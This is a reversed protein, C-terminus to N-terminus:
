QNVQDLATGDKDNSIKKLKAVFFGDVNNKHPAFRKALIMSPDFKHQRHNVFGDDGAEIGTPVLKVNRKKLAFDVVSENEEILVSCTSYVVYGGTKSSANCSDIAALLLNRQVSRLQNINETTRSQKVREDKWIVGTGSCPADLLIRDFYQKFMKPFSCADMNTVIVNTAGCRHVNSIVASLREKKLDNAILIGTNKMLSAMHTTKGGPAACMDLVKENPQPALANVPLMSAIGQIFYQGALYELTAGIPVNSDAIVMATKNWDEAGIVNVGRNSLQQKLASKKTKLTNTRITLPRQNDNAEMFNICEDPNSYISFFRTALCSNYGYLTSVYKEFAEMYDRRPRGDTCTQRFKGGLVKCIGAIRERLLNPLQGPFCEKEIEENSPLVFGEVNSLAENRTLEMEDDQEAELEKNALEIPLKESDSESDSEGLIASQELHQKKSAIKRELKAKRKRLKRLKLGTKTSGEGTSTGEKETSKSEKVEKVPKQKLVKKIKRKVLKKGSVKESVINPEEVIVEKPAEQTNQVNTSKNVKLTAQQSASKKVSNILSSDNEITKKVPTKNKPTVEPTKKGQIIKKKTESNPTKKDETNISETSSKVSKPTSVINSSVSQPTKKVIKKASSIPTKQTPTVGNKKASLIPTKQTPTVGNKKASLTPTKQIPTVGNKKESMVPTRKESPTTVVKKINSSQPTVQQSTSGNFIEKNSQEPTKGKPTGKKKIVRRVPTEGDGIVKKKAVKEPNKSYDVSVLPSADTHNRKRSRTSVM